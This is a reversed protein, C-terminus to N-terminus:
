GVSQRGVPIAIKRVHPGLKDERLALEVEPLFTAVRLALRDYDSQVPTRFRWFRLSFWRRWRASAYMEFHDHLGGAGLQEATRHGGLTMMGEKPVACANIRFAARQYTMFQIEVLDVGGDLQTRRLLDFPFIDASRRDVPGSHARPTTAFGQQIFVPLIHIRVSKLLLDRHRRLKHEEARRAQLQDKLTM